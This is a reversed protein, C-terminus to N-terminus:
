DIYKSVLDRFNNFDRMLQRRGDENRPYWCSSALESKIKELVEKKDM